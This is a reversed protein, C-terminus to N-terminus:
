GGLPPPETIFAVKVIGARQCALLVKGVGEYRSAADGRVQVEPQPTLSSVKKLKDVLADVSSIRTDYWYIHSAQDVSIIINEPKTERIEVREKPLSLKISTTVVPITILFIILLVLMVDVLPTTNIASMVADDGDDSSAVNMSM